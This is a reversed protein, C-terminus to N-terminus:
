GERSEREAKWRQFHEESGPKPEMFGDDKLHQKLDATIAYFDSIANIAEKEYEKQEKRAMKYLCCILVIVAIATIITFALFISNTNIQNTMKM